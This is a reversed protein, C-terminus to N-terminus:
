MLVLDPERFKGPWLRVRFPAFLVKGGFRQVWSLFATPQAAATQVTAKLANKGPTKFFLQVGDVKRLAECSM